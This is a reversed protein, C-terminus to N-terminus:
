QTTCRNDDVQMCVTYQSQDQMLATAQTCTSAVGIQSKAFDGREFGVAHLM